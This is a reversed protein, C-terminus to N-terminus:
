QTAKEKFFVYGLIFSASVKILAGFIPNIFLLIFYGLMLLFNALVRLNKYNYIIIKIYSM